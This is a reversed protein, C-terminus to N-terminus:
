LDKGRVMRIDGKYSDLMNIDRVDWLEITEKKDEDFYTKLADGVMVDIWPYTTKVRRILRKAATLEGEHSNSKTADLRKDAPLVPEIDVVLDMTEDILMAVVFRHYYQTEETTKGDPGKKTITRTLCGACHRHYSSFPEWGDLAVFRLSGFWGERFVKNREAQKLVNRNIKGIDDLNFGDLTDAIVDASFIKKEPCSSFGILQQFDSEALNGELANLSPCRLLACYFLANLVYFPAIDPNHRTDSVKWFQFPINFVSTIYTEFKYLRSNDSLPWHVPDKSDKGRTDDVASDGRMKKKEIKIKSLSM